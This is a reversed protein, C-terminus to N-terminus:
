SRTAPSFWSCGALVLFVSLLFPIRRGWTEFDEKAHDGVVASIGGCGAGARGARRQFTFSGYYGRRGFPSHELM